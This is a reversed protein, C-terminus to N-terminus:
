GDLHTKELVELLKWYSQTLAEHSGSERELIIIMEGKDTRICRSQICIIGHLFSKISSKIFHNSIARLPIAKQYQTVKISTNARNM